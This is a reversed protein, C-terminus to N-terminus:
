KALTAGLVGRARSRAIGSGVLCLSEEFAVLELGAGGPAEPGLPREWLFGWFGVPAVAVGLEGRWRGFIGSGFRGLLGGGV